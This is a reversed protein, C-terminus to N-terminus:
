NGKRWGFRIEELRHAFNAAMRLAEPDGLLGNQLFEYEADVDPDDTIDVAQRPKGIGRNFIEKAFALVLEPEEAPDLAEFTDILRRAVQPTFDELIKKATRTGKSPGGFRNGPAFRGTADRYTGNTPTTLYSSDGDTFTTVQDDRDVRDQDSRLKALYRNLTTRPLGVQVAAKSKSMGQGILYAARTVKNRVEANDIAAM